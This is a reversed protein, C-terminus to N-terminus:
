QPKQSSRVTAGARTAMATMGTSIMRVSTLPANEFM